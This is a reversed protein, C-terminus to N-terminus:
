LVLLRGVGGVCEPFHSGRAVSDSASSGPGTPQGLGSNRSIRKSIQTPEFNPSIHAFIPYTRSKPPLNRSKHAARETYNNQSAHVQM